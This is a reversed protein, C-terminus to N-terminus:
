REGMEPMLGLVTMPVPDLQRIKVSVAEDSGSGVSVEHLGTYLPIPENEDDVQRQQWEYEKGDNSSFWGGRSNEVRVMVAAIEKKRGATATGRELDLTELECVYPLGVCAKEVPVPLTIAGATVTYSGEVFGDAYVVVDEGELHDLGSLVTAPAGDYTLFSDLCRADEADTWTRPEMREIFRRTAGGITRKIIAYVIDDTGERICCVSEFEGDTTHRHWAWVEQERMYTLGLLTGDSRVAWVVSDPSQQYCWDVLTYGKFLHGAMVSLDAGVMGEGEVTYVLDRVLSGREQVFLLSNGVPVPQLSSCGWYSSADQDISAPTLADGNSHVVVEAGGTLAVLETLPVLHRIENVQQTGLAITISDDAQIPVSVSFNEFSGPRGMWLGIPANETNAYCLRQKHVGVTAPYDGAAAFPNRPRPPTDSLVPDIYDDVFSTKLTTGIYGSM